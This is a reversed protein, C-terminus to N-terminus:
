CYYVVAPGDLNRQQIDVLASLGTQGCARLIDVCKSIRCRELVVDLEEYENKPQM